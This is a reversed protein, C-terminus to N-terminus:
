HLSANVFNKDKHNKNQVRGGSLEQLQSCQSSFPTLHISQPKFVKRKLITHEQKHWWSFQLLLILMSFHSYITKQPFHILMPWLCYIDVVIM